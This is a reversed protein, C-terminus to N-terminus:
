NLYIFTLTIINIWIIADKCFRNNHNLIKLSLCFLINTSLLLYAFKQKINIAIYTKRQLSISIVIFVYNILVFVKILVNKSTIIMSGKTNYHILKKYDIKINFRKQTVKLVFGKVKTTYSFQFLNHKSKCHKINM